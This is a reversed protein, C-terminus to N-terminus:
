NHWFSKNIVLDNNQISFFLGDVFGPLVIYIRHLILFFFFSEANIKLHDITPDGYLWEPRDITILISYDGFIVM